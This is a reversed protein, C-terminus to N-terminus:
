SPPPNSRERFQDSTLGEEMAEMADHVHEHEHAPDDGWEDITEIHTEHHHHM